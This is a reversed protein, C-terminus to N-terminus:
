SLGKTLGAARLGKQLLSRTEDDSRGANLRQYLDCAEAFPLANFLQDLHKASM